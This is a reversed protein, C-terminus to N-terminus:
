RDGRKEVASSRLVEPLWNSNAIKREAILALDKKKAKDWAPAVAGKV